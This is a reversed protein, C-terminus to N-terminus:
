CRRGQVMDFNLAQKSRQKESRFTASPSLEAEELEEGSARLSNKGFLRLLAVFYVDCTCSSSFGAVARLLGLLSWCSFCGEDCFFGYGVM